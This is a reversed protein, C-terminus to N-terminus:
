DKGSSLSYVVDASAAYITGDASLVRLSGPNDASVVFTGIFLAEV